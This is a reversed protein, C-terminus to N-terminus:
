CGRPSDDRRPEESREVRALALLIVVLAIKYVVRYNLIRDVTVRATCPVMRVRVSRRSVPQGSLGQLVSPIAM